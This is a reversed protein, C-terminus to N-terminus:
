GACPKDDERARHCDTQRARGRALELYKLDVLLPFWLAQLFHYVLAPRGDLFGGRVVYRFFFYLFPRALPPLRNWVRHRLWRKREAQTGFLRAEIEGRLAVDNRRLLEQAERSAYANHKTIWRDIGDADEHVFDAELYGVKGEVIIHENVAREECRAASRRFLRLIWTPYYGRRIWRGMWIFRRKIYFGNEKPSDEVRAAIERRLEPTLWEDADLFLMWDTEIPLNAIAHNRQKGYDEFRHRFVKCGSRHAIDVTGDTSFSDLLLVEHAWGIVSELARGVNTEENLTLIVVTVPCRRSLEPPARRAVSASRRVRGTRGHDAPVREM